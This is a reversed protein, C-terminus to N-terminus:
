QKRLKPQETLAVRTAARICDCYRTRSVPFRGSHCKEEIRVPGCAFVLRQVGPVSAFRPVRRETGVHGGVKWFFVRLEPHPDGDAWLSLKM